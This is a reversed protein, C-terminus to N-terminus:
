HSIRESPKKQRKTQIAITLNKHKLNNEASWVFLVHLDINPLM